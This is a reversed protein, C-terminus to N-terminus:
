EPQDEGLDGRLDELEHKKREYGHPEATWPTTGRGPPVAVGLPLPCSRLNPVSSTADDGVCQGRPDHM